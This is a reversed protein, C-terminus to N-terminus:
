KEDGAEEVSKVRTYSMTADIPYVLEAGATYTKHLKGDSLRVADYTNITDTPYLIEPTKIYVDDYMDEFLAGVSISRIDVRKDVNKQIITLKSM